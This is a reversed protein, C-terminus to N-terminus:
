SGPTWSKIETIKSQLLSRFQEVTLPHTSWFNRPDEIMGAKIKFIGPWTNFMAPIGEVALGVSMIPALFDETWDFSYESLFVYYEEGIQPVPMKRFSGLDAMYGIAVCPLTNGLPQEQQEKNHSAPYYLPCNSPVKTGKIKEVVECSLAVRPHLNSSGWSSDTGQAVNVVRVRYIYHSLLLARIHPDFENSRKDIAGMIPTYFNAMFPRDDHISRGTDRTAVFHAKVLAHSYEDMGYLLRAVFRLDEISMQMPFALAQSLTVNSRVLSDMAVYGIFCDFPMDTHLQPITTIPPLPFTIDKVQVTSSYVQGVSMGHCCLLCLFALLSVRM